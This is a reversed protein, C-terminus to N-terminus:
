GGCAATTFRAVAECAAQYEAPVYNCGVALAVGLFIGVLKARAAAKAAESDKKTKAM